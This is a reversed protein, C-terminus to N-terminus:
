YEMKTLYFEAVQMDRRTHIDLGNVRDMVYLAVKGGVRSKNKVILSRKSIFIAGNGVYYPKMEQRNKITKRVAEIKGHREKWISHKEEFVSLLSTAKKDKFLRYASRIDTATRFPSTTQLTFINWYLKCYKLEVVDLTHRVVPLLPVKDWGLYDPRVLLEVKGKYDSQCIDQIIPCDTTVVIKDFFKIKVAEDITWCILPKGGLPLHNKGKLGKSGRRAPIIALNM